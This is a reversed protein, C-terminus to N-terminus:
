PTQKRLKALKEAIRKKAANTADTDISASLVRDDEVNVILWDGTKAGRPLFSKSVVLQDQEKGVLLVAKNGEFRDIVANTKM